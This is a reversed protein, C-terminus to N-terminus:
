GNSTFWKWHSLVSQCRRSFFSLPLSPQPFSDFLRTKLSSEPVFVWWSQRLMQSTLPQNSLLWSVHPSSTNTSSTLSAWWAMKVEQLTLWLMMLLHLFYFPVSLLPKFFFDCNTKRSKRVGCSSWNPSSSSAPKRLSPTPSIWLERSSQSCWESLTKQEQFFSFNSLRRYIRCKLEVIFESIIFLLLWWLEGCVFGRNIVWGSQGDGWEDWKRRHDPHLQLLEESADAEGSCGGPRQGRGATGAGWLHRAGAAHLSAALLSVGAAVMAVPSICTLWSHDKIVVTIRCSM